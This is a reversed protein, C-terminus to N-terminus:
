PPVFPCVSVHNTLVSVAFLILAIGGCTSVYIWFMISIYIM